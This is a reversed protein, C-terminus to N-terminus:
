RNKMLLFRNKLKTTVLYVGYGQLIMFAPLLDFRYRTQVEIFLHAAAYGLLFILMLLYDSNLQPKWFLIYLSGIFCFTLTLLYTVREGKYLFDVFEPSPSLGNLSWDISSDYDGWMYAFKNKLLTVIAGKDSTREQILEKAKENREDWLSFQDLYVRDEESYKGQTEHNFGVVFKYLSDKNALTEDTIGIGMIMLSVVKQIVFYVAIIGIFKKGYTLYIEKNGKLLFVIVVYVLIALLVISGLPRIINGLGILLGITIWRYKKSFGSHIVLYLALFYFFTSLHQNTLVSCMVISPIYFASILGAMRGSLENFLKSAALYVVLVTGVSYLINLFKLARPSEGFIFIVISEYFSFGLQYTWKQFYSDEMFGYDGNVIDIAAYYLVNFDSVIPTKIWYVWGIRLLFAIGVLLIIYIKKSLFKTSLYAITSVILLSLLLWGTLAFTSIKNEDIETFSSVLSFIFFLLGLISILLVLVQGLINKRM